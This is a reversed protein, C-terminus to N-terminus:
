ECSLSLKYGLKVYLNYTGTGIKKEGMCQETTYIAYIIPVVTTPIAFIIPLNDHRYGSGFANINSARCYLAFFMYPIYIQKLLVNTIDQSDDNQSFNTKDSRSAKSNKM